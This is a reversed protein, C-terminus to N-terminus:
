FNDDFVLFFLLSYLLACFVVIRNVAVRSPM